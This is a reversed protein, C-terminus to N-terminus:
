PKKAKGPYFVGKVRGEKGGSGFMHSVKTALDMEAREGELMDQGRKVKVSGILEAKGGAVDYVASRATATEGSTVIVVNGKAEARKLSGGMGSGSISQTGSTGRDLWATVEDAELTDKGSVVKPRGVAIIKNDTAYYEFRERATVVMDQGTMKLDSGTVVAKGQDIEYVAREGSVSSPGSAIFVRGEATLRYIETGGDPGERYDATLTEAQVSFDGQVARADQRAVYQKKDRNWELAKQATIELPQQATAPQEAAHVSSFSLPSVSLMVILAFTLAFPRM